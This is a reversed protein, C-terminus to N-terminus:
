KNYYGAKETKGPNRSPHFATGIHDTWPFEGDVCVNVAEVHFDAMLMNCNKGHNPAPGFNNIMDRNAPKIEGGVYGYKLAAPHPGQYMMEQGGGDGGFAPDVTGNLCGLLPLSTANKIESLRREKGTSAAFDPEFGRFFYTNYGYTGKAELEIPQTTCRFLEYDWVEDNPVNHNDFYYPRLKYPLRTYKSGATGSWNGTPLQGKWDQAYLNLAVGIDKQQSACVIAKGQERVKRLAPMLISMLVAIISIVVLLEILTFAQRLHKVALRHSSLEM